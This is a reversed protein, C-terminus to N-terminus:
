LVEVGAPLVSLLKIAVFLTFLLYGVVLIPRTRGHWRPPPGNATTLELLVVFGVFIGFLVSEIDLGSVFGYAGVILAWSGLAIVADRGSLRLAGAAPDTDPIGADDVTTDTERATGEDSPTQETRAM